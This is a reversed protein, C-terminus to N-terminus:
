ELRDYAKSMDSKVAMYCHTRAKSTKLYHLIEHTILVNDSIARKPVFASQCESVLVMLLPQIRRALLKSIIKYLVNCLAIPRYDALKMPSMIMPILRIHTENVTRPMVGYLFFDQVEKVIDEGVVRWNSQFFCASFGDPGPAKGPHISFLAEKIEETEPIIILRKNQEESVLTPILESIIAEIEFGNRDMPTFMTQFYSEITSTIAEEKYVPVGDEGELVSFKNLAKRKKTTAHFFGTNKDGLNLWLQRSRQKWFEEKAKYASHLEENLEKLRTEDPRPDVMIQEIQQKISELLAKNEALQQKSWKILSTRCRDIKQKVRLQEDANKMQM